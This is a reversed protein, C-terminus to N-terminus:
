LGHGVLVLWSWCCDLGVLVLLYWSWGLGVLVLWSWGLGLGVLIFWFLFCSLGVLVLVLWSVCFDFYHDGPWPKSRRDQKEKMELCVVCLHRKSTQNYWWITMGNPIFCCVRGGSKTRDM